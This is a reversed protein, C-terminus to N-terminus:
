TPALAMVCATLSPGGGFQQQGVVTSVVELPSSGKPAADDLVQRYSQAIQLLKLEALDRDLQSDADDNRRTM